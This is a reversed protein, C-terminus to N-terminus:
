RLEADGATGSKPAAIVSLAKPRSRYRLPAALIEVEGDLAVPLRSVATRLEAHRARFIALDRETDLKGLALRGALALLGLPTRPRAVYLCLDGADLRPRKVPALINGGYANNGIFLCPTRFAEVIGEAHVTLRRRPLNRMVRLFALSMALWKAIGHM